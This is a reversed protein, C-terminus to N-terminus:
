HAKKGSDPGKFLAPETDRISEFLGKKPVKDVDELCEQCFRHNSVLSLSIMSLSRNSVYTEFLLNKSELVRKVLLTM